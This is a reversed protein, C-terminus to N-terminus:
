ADTIAEAIEPREWWPDSIAGARGTPNLQGRRDRYLAWPWIGHQALHWRGDAAYRKLKRADSADGEAWQLATLAAPRDGRVDLLIAIHAALNPDRRPNRTARPVPHPQAVVPLGTAPDIPLHEAAELLEDIRDRRPDPNPDRLYTARIGRAHERRDHEEEALRTAKTLVRQGLRPTKIGLRRVIEHVQEPTPARPDRLPRAHRLERRLYAIPDLKGPVDSVPRNGPVKTAMHCRLNGGLVPRCRRRLQETGGFNGLQEGDRRPGNAAEGRSALQPLHPKAPARNSVGGVVHRAVDGPM